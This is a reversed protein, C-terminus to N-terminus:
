PSIEGNKVRWVYAAAGIAAGLTNLIVDDVECRGLHFWLQAAEVAVAVPHTKPPLVNPLSLGVPVFLFANMLMARDPTKCPKWLLVCRTYRGNERRFASSSKEGAPHIRNSSIPSSNAM